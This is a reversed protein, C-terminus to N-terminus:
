TALGATDEKVGCAVIGLTGDALPRQLKLAEDPPATMWTEVEDPTTLIVPMAKRHVPKVVTNPDTTLLGFIDCTVPGEKAKRVSTWNTWIGAFFAPSQEENLAFWSLKSRDADTNESFATM